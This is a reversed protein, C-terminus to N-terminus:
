TTRIDFVNALARRIRAMADGDLKAIPGKEIDQLEDIDISFVADAQAVCDKTLGFQGTQFYVCNPFNKREEVRGSTIPVVVAYKGRNLFERSVVILRHGGPARYIDGPNLRIKM